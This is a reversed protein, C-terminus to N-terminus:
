GFGCGLRRQLCTKAQEVSRFAVPIFLLYAFRHPLHELRPLDLPLFHEDGRLEPIVIMTRLADFGGELGTELFELEVVDIEVEDVGGKGELGPVLLVRPIHVAM